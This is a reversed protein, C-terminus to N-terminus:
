RSGSAGWPLRRMIHTGGEEAGEVNDDGFLGEGTFAEGIEAARFVPVEGAGEAFASERNGVPDFVAQGVVQFEGSDGTDSQAVYAM